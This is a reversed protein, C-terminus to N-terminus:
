SIGRVTGVDAVCTGKIGKKSYLYTLPPRVIGDGRLQVKDELHFDPFQEQIVGFDEWDSRIRASAEVQDM